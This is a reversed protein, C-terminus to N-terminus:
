HLEKWRGQFSRSPGKLGGMRADEAERGGQSGEAEGAWAEKAGARGCDTDGPKSPMTRGTTVGAQTLEALRLTWRWGLRGAGRQRLTRRTLAFPAAREQSTWGPAQM